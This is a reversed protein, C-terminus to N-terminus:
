QVKLGAVGYSDGISDDMASNRSLYHEADYSQVATVAM